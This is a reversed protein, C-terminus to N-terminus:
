IHNFMQKCMFSGLKKLGYVNIEISYEIYLDMISYVNKKIWFFQKFNIKWVCM